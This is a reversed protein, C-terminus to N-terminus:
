DRRLGDPRGPRLVQNFPPTARLGQFLLVIFAPLTAPRRMERLNSVAVARAPTALTPMAAQPPPEELVFAADGVVV